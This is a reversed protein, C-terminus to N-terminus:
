SRPKPSLKLVLHKLGIKLNKLRHNKDDVKQGGEGHSVTDVKKLAKAADLCAHHHKGDDM